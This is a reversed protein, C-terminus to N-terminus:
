QNPFNAKLISFLMNSFSRVIWIPKFFYNTKVLNRGFYNGHPGGSPVQSQCEIEPTLGCGGKLSAIM